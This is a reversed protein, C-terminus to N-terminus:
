KFVEGNQILKEEEYPRAIRIYFEMSLCFLVGCIDNISSYSLGREALYGKILQSIAYNLEGPKSPVRGEVLSARVGQEIYPM